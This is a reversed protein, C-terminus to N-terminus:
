HIRLICKESNYMYKLNDLECLVGEAAVKTIEHAVM